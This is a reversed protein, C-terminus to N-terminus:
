VEGNSHQGDNNAGSDDGDNAQKNEDAKEKIKKILESAKSMSIDELRELNNAELLKKLRDGRYVVKLADVQKPTAREGRSSKNVKQSSDAESGTKLMFMNALYHNLVGSGDDMIITIEYFGTEIDFLSCEVKLVRVNSQMFCEIESFRVELKNKLLLETFLERHDNEVSEKHQFMGRKHLSKRLANKKQQLKINLELWDYSSVDVMM